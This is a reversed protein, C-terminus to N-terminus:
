EDDQPESNRRGPKSADSARRGAGPIKKKRADYQKIAWKLFYLVVDQQSHGTKEAIADLQAILSKPTRINLQKLEREPAPPLIDDDSMADGQERPAESDSWAAPEEQIGTAPINEVDRRLLRIIMETRSCRSETAVESLRLLLDEPLRMSTLRTKQKPPLEPVGRSYSAVV